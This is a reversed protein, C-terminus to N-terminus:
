TGRGTQCAEAGALVSLVGNEMKMVRTAYPMLELSHTVMLVTVGSGHIKRLLAMIEQETQEDLDSTPEDALLLEPQNLLSRAIVVRKQEGASLQKPHAEMRDSLGMLELLEAARERAKRRSKRPGFSAPLAVNELATLSPLLSPYQFMFGMKQNRLMSLQRDSIAWVNLDGILVEGRTPKVLGAALNLLTTKGSGSRGIVIIFDGQPVDLSVNDVPTITTEDDLAYEKTVGRLVIKM